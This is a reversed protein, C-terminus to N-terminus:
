SFPCVKAFMHWIRSVNQWLDGTRYEKEAKITALVDM